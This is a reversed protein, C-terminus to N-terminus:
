RVGGETGAYRDRLSALGRSAASKVSGVSIGLLDAVAQESLDAYYRMVVVKRQQEPLTALMRVVEERNEITDGTQTGGLSQWPPEPTMASTVERRTARWTDTRQNILVRRAYALAEGRRIRPWAVYTKVLAAQVLEHAAEGDGTLLWATGILSRTAHEVFATFEADRQAKSLGFVAVEKTVWVV